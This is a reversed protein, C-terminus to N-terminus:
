TKKFFPFVQCFNHFSQQILRTNKLCKKYKFLINKHNDAYIFYKLQRNPKKNKSLKMQLSNYELDYSYSFPPKRFISITYTSYCIVGDLFPFVAYSLFQTAYFLTCIIPFNLGYAFCFSDNGDIELKDCFKNWFKCSFKGSFSNQIFFRHM